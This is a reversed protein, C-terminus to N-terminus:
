NNKKAFGRFYEETFVSSLKGYFAILLKVKMRVKSFRDAIAWFNPDPCFLNQAITNIDNELSSMAYQTLMGKAALLTDLDQSSQNNKLAGVGNEPDNYDFGPANQQKWTVTDLMSPYDRFLVSSFEHHFTQEIYADTYGMAEGNNSVYVADSSNTGGFGVNYFKMSKILYVARLTISLLNVPYKKLAKEIIPEARKLEDAAIQEGAANIPVGQWSGPFIAQSYESVIQVGNVVTTDRSAAILSVPFFLVFSLKLLIKM